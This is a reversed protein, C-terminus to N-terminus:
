ADTFEGGSGTIDIYFLFIRAQKFSALAERLAPVDAVTAYYSVLLAYRAREGWLRAGAPSGASFPRCMEVKTKAVPFTARADSWLRAGAPSGSAFAARPVAETVAAQSADAVRQYDVLRWSGAAVRHAAIAKDLVTQVQAEIRAPEQATDLLLAHGVGGDPWDWAEGPPLLARLAAVFDDATHSEIQM